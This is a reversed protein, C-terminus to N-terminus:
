SPMQFFFQLKLKPDITPTQLPVIMNTYSNAHMSLPTIIPQRQLM